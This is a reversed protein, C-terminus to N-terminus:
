LIEVTALTHSHDTRCRAEGWIMEAAVGNGYESRLGLRIKKGTPNGALARMMGSITAATYLFFGSQVSM